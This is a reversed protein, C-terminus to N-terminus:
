RVEWSWSSVESVWRSLAQIDVSTDIGLMSVSDEPVAVISGVLAESNVGLSNVEWFIWELIIDLELDPRLHLCSSSDSVVFINTSSVVSESDLVVVWVVVSM